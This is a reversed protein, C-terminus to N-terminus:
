APDSQTDARRDRRAARADRMERRKAPEVYLIRVADEILSAIDTVEESSFEVGDHLSWNGTLRAEHLDSLLDDDIRGRLAEIKARLPKDPINEQDDVLAEVCARYLGAAGRLAGASEAVSAERFFSRADPPAEDPLERPAKAPWVVWSEEQRLARRVEERIEDGALESSGYKVLMLMTKQCFDCRWLYGLVSPETAHPEGIHWHDPWLRWQNTLVMSTKHGCNQCEM